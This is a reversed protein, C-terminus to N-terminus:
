GRAVLSAMPFGCFDPPPAVAASFPKWLESQSLLSSLSSGARPSAQFQWGLAGRAPVRCGGGDLARLATGPHSSHLSAATRICEVVQRHAEQRGWQFSWAQCSANVKHLEETMEGQIKKKPWAELHGCHKSVDPGPAWRGM